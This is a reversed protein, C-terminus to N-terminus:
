PKAGERYRHLRETFQGPESEFALQGAAALVAENEHHVLGALDQAHKPQLRIHQLADALALLQDKGFTGAKSMLIAEICGQTPTM